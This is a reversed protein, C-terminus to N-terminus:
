DVVNMNVLEGERRMSETGGRVKKRFRCSGGTMGCEEGECVRASDEWKVPPRGRANVAYVRSM